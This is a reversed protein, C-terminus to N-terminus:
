SGSSGISSAEWELDFGEPHWIRWGSPLEILFSPSAWTYPNKKRDRAVEWVPVTCISLIVKRIAKYEKEPSPFLESMRRHTYGLGASLVAKKNEFYVPMDISAFGDFRGQHDCFVEFPLGTSARFALELRPELVDKSLVEALRMPVDHRVRAVVDYGLHDMATLIQRFETQTCLFHTWAM